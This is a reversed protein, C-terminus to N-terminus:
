KKLMIGWGASIHKNFIFSKSKMYFYYNNSNLIYRKERAVHM